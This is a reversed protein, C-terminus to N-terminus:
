WAHQHLWADIREALASERGRFQPADAIFVTQLYRHNGARRAALRRDLAQGTVLEHSGAQYIDLVPISLSELSAYLDLRPRLFPYDQMNIGVMGAVSAPPSGALFRAALLAGFGHGVCVMRSIGRAELYRVGVRLRSLAESVTRGYDEPAASLPLMPMQMSLSSRGAAALALRLPRTLVVHDPHMGMAPLLILALEPQVAGSRTSLEAATYLNLFSDGAFELWVSEASQLQALLDRALRSERDNQAALPAALVLMLGVTIMQYPIWRVMASLVYSRFRVRIDTAAARPQIMWRGLTDALGGGKVLVFWQGSRRVVVASRLDSTDKPRQEFYDGPLRHFHDPAQLGPPM